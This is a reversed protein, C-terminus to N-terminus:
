SNMEKYKIKMTSRPLIYFIFLDVKKKEFNLFLNHYTLLYIALIIVEKIVTRLFCHVNM